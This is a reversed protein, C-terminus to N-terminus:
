EINRNIITIETKEFKKLSVIAEIKNSRDIFEIKATNPSITGINLARVKIITYQELLPIKIKKAKKSITYNELLVQGNVLIRIRDGDEKGADYINLIIFPSTSFMNLNDNNRLVNMKLSDLQKTISINSKEEETIKKTRQIIRDIKAAKKIIKNINKLALEGNICSTGDSYKGEFKGEINKKSKFGRVKGSFHVHCFDYTTIESKTYVITTERFKLMNKKKDYFGSILSKTEHKGGMDTISFGNITGNKEILNVKYSIFASDNLKLVGLYEQQNQAYILVDGLLLVFFVFLYSQKVSM